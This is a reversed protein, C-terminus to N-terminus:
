PQVEEGPNPVTMLCFVPFSIYIAGIVIMIMYGLKEVKSIHGKPIGLVPTVKKWGLCAHIMFIVVSFIYFYAWVNPLKTGFVSVTEAFVDYELKYIDRVPIMQAKGAETTLDVTTDWFLKLKFLGWSFNILYPPPVMYYDQTAGFRFQFLHITMFTLLTVGTIAGHLAGSRVGMSLKMDWTRKLGVFGM